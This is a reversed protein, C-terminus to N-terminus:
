AVQALSSAPLPQTPEMAGRERAWVVVWPRVPGLGLAEEVNMWHWPREDPGPALPAVHSARYVPLYRGHQLALVSATAGIAAGEPSFAVLVKCEDPTMALVSEAWESLSAPDHMAQRVQQIRNLRKADM